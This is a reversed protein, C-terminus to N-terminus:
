ESHQIRSHVAAGDLDEIIKALSTKTEAMLCTLHIYTGTHTGPALASPDLVTSKIGLSQYRRVEWGLVSCVSHDGALLAPIPQVPASYVEKSSICAGPVPVVSAHVSTCWCPQATWHGGGERLSYAKASHM